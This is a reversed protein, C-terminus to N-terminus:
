FQIHRLQSIETPINRKGWNHAQHVILHVCLRLNQDLSSFKSKLVSGQLFQVSKETRQKLNIKQDKCSFNHQNKKYHSKM